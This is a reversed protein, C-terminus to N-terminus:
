PMHHNTAERLLMHMHTPNHYNFIQILSCVTLHGMIIPNSAIYMHMLYSFNSLKNSICNINNLSVDLNKLPFSQDIGEVSSLNEYSVNVTTIHGVHMM